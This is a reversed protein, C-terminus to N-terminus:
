QLLTKFKNLLALPITTTTEMQQLMPPVANRLPSQLLAQLVVTIREVQAQMEADDPKFAVALQSVLKPIVQQTLVHSLLLHMKYLQSNTVLKSQHMHEMEKHWEQMHMMDVHQLKKSTIPTYVQQVLTPWWDKVFRAWVFTDYQQIWHEMVQMARYRVQMKADKFFRHVVYHWLAHMKQLVNTSNSDSDNDQSSEKMPNKMCATIGDICDLVLLRVEFQVHSIYLACHDLCEFLFQNMVLIYQKHQQQQPELPQQQQQQKKSEHYKAFYNGMHEMTHGNEDDSGGAIDDNDNNNTGVLIDAPTTLVPQQEQRSYNSTIFQVYAHILQWFSLLASGTNNAIGKAQELGIWLYHIVDEHLLIYVITATANHQMTQVLGQLIPVFRNATTASTNYITYSMRYRLEDMITDAHAVVINMGFKHQLAHYCHHAAAFCAKSQSGLQELVFFM